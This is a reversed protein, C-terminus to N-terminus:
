LSELDHSSQGDLNFRTPATSVWIHDIVGEIGAQHGVIDLCALLNGNMIKGGIAVYWPWAFELQEEEGKDNKVTVTYRAEPIDDLSFEKTQPEVLTLDPKSSEVHNTACGVASFCLWILVIGVILLKAFRKTNM